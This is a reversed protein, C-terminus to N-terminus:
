IEAQHSEGAAVFNVGLMWAYWSNPVTKYARMLTSDSMLKRRAGGELHTVSSVQARRGSQCAAELGTQDRGQALALRTDPCRHTDHVIDFLQDRQLMLKSGAKHSKPMLEHGVLIPYAVNTASRGM